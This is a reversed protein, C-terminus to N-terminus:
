DNIGRATEYHKSHITRKAKLYAAHADDPNSYSGLSINKGNVKIMARWPNAKRHRSYTVGLRGATNGKHPRTQNQMNVFQTVDRLNAIRNDSKNGNIHDIQHDPWKGHFLRWAVRHVMLTKGRFSFCWHGWSNPKGILTGISINRNPKKEWRLEGSLHNYSVFKILECEFTAREQETTKTM